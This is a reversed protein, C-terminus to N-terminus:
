LIDSSFRSDFHHSTACTSITVLPKIVEIWTGDFWSHCKWGTDHIMSPSPWVVAALEWLLRTRAASHSDGSEHFRRLKLSEFTCMFSRCFYSGLEEYSPNHSRGRLFSVFPRSFVWYWHLQTYLPASDDNEFACSWGRQGGGDDFLRTCQTGTHM